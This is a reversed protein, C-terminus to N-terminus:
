ALSLENASFINISKSNSTRDPEFFISKSNTRASLFLGFSNVAHSCRELNVIASPAILKVVRLCKIIDVIFHYPTKTRIYIPDSIKLWQCVDRQNDFTILRLKSTDVNSEMCMQYLRIISGKGMLKIAIIREGSNLNKASMEQTRELIWKLPFFLRDFFLLTPRSFKM